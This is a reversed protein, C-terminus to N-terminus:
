IIPHRLREIQRLPFIVFAHKEAENEVRCTYQCRSSEAANPASAESSSTSSSSSGRALSAPDFLSSLCDFSEPSSSSPSPSESSSPADTADDAEDAEDVADCRATLSANKAGISGEEDLVGLDDYLEKADRLRERGIMRASVAM